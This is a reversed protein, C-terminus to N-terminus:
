DEIKFGRKTLAERLEDPLEYSDKSASWGIPTSDYPTWKRNYGEEKEMEKIVKEKWCQEIREELSMDFDVLAGADLRAPLKAKDITSWSSMSLESVKYHKGSEYQYVTPFWFLHRPTKLKRFGVITEYYGDGYWVSRNYTTREKIPEYWVWIDGGYANVERLATYIHGVEHKTTKKTKIDAKKQMDALAEQYSSMNEHLMGVGNKQRAFCLPVQCVGNVFTTQKLVDLLLDAAIGIRFRKGDVATIWCDWFSLKGGQSSGGASDKLELIFDKNDYLFESGEITTSGAYKGNEDYHYQASKAWYLANEKMKANAPDVVYGQYDEADIYTRTNHDYTREKKAVILVKDFLSWGKYEKDM